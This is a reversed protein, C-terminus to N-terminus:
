ISRARQIDMERFIVIEEDNRALMMNLEDDNM